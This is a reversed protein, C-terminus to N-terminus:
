REYHLVDKVSNLDIIRTCTSRIFESDHSVVCVIRGMAAMKKLSNSVVKMNDLDLGSTPEDFFQIPRNLNLASAIVVRQKQGGSLSGPHRDSLGLLGLEDLIKSGRKKVEGLNEHDELGLVIEDEVSQSFLQYDPDQMVLNCLKIRENSSLKKNNYLIEGGTAKILGSLIKILTTKGAGNKGTIGVIEGGKISLNIGNILEKGKKYKFTLNRVDLRIEPTVQNTFESYTTNDLSLSRIGKSKLTKPSIKLINEGKALLEMSGNDIYFLRDIFSCLYYLTHESVIITYGNKKLYQLSKGLELTAEIDLNASPEDLVLIRPNLAFATGLAIKQKEGSSLSFISRGKLHKMNLAEFVHNLRRNIEDPEVSFNEPGFAIESTTTTTFFQSRPDQFVSGCLPTKEQKEWSKASKGDFTLEGELTGGYFGPLLQNIVRTITTKGSGSRGTFVICEGSNIRININSLCPKSEGPFTYTIGKLELM